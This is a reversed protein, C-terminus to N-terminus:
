SAIAAIHVGLGASRGSKRERMSAYDRPTFISSQTDLTHLLGDSSSYVLQEVPIAEVYDREVAALASTYIRYHQTVEDQASAAASNGLAGGLIASLTVTVVAAAFFRPSRMFPMTVSSTYRGCHSGPM